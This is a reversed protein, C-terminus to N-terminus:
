RQENKEDNTARDVVVSRSGAMPREGGVGIPAFGVVLDGGVHRFEAVCEGGDDDNEIPQVAHVLVVVLDFDLVNVRIGAEQDYSNSRTQEVACQHTLKLQRVFQGHKPAVTHKDKANQGGFVGDLFGCSSELVHPGNPPHGQDHRQQDDKEVLFVM